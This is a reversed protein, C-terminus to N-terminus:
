NTPTYPTVKMLIITQGDRSLLLLFSEERMLTSHSVFIYIHLLLRGHYIDRTDIGLTCQICYLRQHSIGGGVLHWLFHDKFLALREKSTHEVIDVLVVVVLFNGMATQDRMSTERM